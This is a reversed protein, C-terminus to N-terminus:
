LVANLYHPFFIITFTMCLNGYLRAFVGLYKGLHFLFKHKCFFVQVHVYLQGWISVVCINKLQCIFLPPVDM